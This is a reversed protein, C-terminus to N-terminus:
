RGQVAIATEVMRKAIPAAAGLLLKGNPNSELLVAFALTPHEVPAFGIVGDMSNEGKNGHTLSTKMAISVSSSWGTRNLGTTDCRMVRHLLAWQEESLGPNPLKGGRQGALLVPRWANGRTAIVSALQAMQLPTALIPGHGIAMNALYANGIGERSGASKQDGLDAELFHGKAEGPLSIGTKEGLGLNAAMRALPEAGIKQAMEFFYVYQAKILADELKFEGVDAKNWSRFTKGDILVSSECHIATNERGERLAAMATCLTLGTGPTYERHVARSSFRHTGLASKEGSAAIKNPDFGSSSALVLLGGTKLDMAVAAGQCGSAALEQEAFRQLGADLTLMVQRGEKLRSNLSEEVGLRGELASDERMAVGVVHAALEKEPYVRLGDPRTEALVLGSRDVISGRLKSSEVAHILALPLALVMGVGAVTPWWGRVAGSRSLSKDLIATLRDQVSGPRAMSLGCLLVDSERSKQTSFALLCEAYDSAPVGHRLVADDCAREQDARLRRLTLWALPDFWRLVQAIQGLWLALPDRRALHAFEHLLVAQLKPEAWAEFGSPLMLVKRWVGWVMPASGAEGVVVQPLSKLGVAVAAERIQSHVADTIDTKRTALKRLHLASMGLRAFGIVAGAAWIWFLVRWDWAAKPAVEVRVPEISSQIEVPMSQTVDPLPQEWQTESSLVLPENAIERQAPMAAGIEPRPLIRWAPGCLMAAPLALTALLAVLWLGYRKAASLRRCAVGVVLAFALVLGGRFAMGFLWELTDITRM